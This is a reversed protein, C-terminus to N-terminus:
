TIIGPQAAKGGFPSKLEGLGKQISLQISLYKTKMEIEARSAAGRLYNVDLIPLNWAEGKLLHEVRSPHFPSSSSKSSQGNTEVSWAKSKQFLLCYVLGRRTQMSSKSSPQRLRPAQCKLAPKRPKPQPHSAASHLWWTVSPFVVVPLNGQLPFPSTEQSSILVQSGQHDFAM